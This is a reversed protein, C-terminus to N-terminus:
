KGIECATEKCLIALERLFPFQETKGNKLGLVTEPVHYTNMLYKQLFLHLFQRHRIFIQKKSLKLCVSPIKKSRKGLQSRSSSFQIIMSILKM